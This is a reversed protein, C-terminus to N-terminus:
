SGCWEPPSSIVLVVGKEDEPQSVEVLPLTKSFSCGKAELFKAIQKAAHGRNFAWCLLAAGHDNYNFLKM